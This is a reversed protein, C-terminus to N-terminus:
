TGGEFPGCNVHADAVTRPDGEINFTQSNEAPSIMSFAPLFDKTGDTREVVLRCTRFSPDLGPWAWRVNFGMETRGPIPKHTIPNVPAAIGTPASFVYGRGTYIENHKDQCSGTVATPKGSVSVVESGQRARDSGSMLEFRVHGVQTGSSNTLLLECNAGGPFGAKPWRTTFFALAKRHTPLVDPRPDDYPYTVHFDSLRYTAGPPSVIASRRRAGTLPARSTLALYGWASAGVLLIAIAVGGGIRRADRSKTRPLPVALIQHVRQHSLGLQDAIQRISMGTSHLDRIASYYDNKAVEAEDQLAEFGARAAVVARLM